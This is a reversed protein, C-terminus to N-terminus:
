KRYVGQDKLTQVVVHTELDLQMGIFEESIGSLYLNRAAAKKDERVIAMQAMGAYVGTRSKLDHRYINNM